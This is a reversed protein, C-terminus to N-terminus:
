QQHQCLEFEQNERKRQVHELENDKEMILKNLINVEEELEEYRRDTSEGDITQSVLVIM